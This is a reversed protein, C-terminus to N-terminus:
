KFLNDTNLKGINGFIQALVGKGRINTTTVRRSLPVIRGQDLGFREINEVVGTAGFTIAVVERTIEVPEAAGITKWRSQVYYWAEDGLLDSAAPRGITAAVSDRTDVGVALLSLDQETPIYGHNSYIPVCAALGACLGIALWGRRMLGRRPGRGEAAGFRM